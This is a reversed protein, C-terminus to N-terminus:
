ACVLAALAAAAAAGAAARAGSAPAEGAAAPAAVDGTLLRWGLKQHVACQYYLEAPADAPVTWAFEAPAEATGSEAEGGAFVEEGVYGDPAGGGVSSNTLYLPHTAGAAVRFTYTQGRAVRLAPTEV